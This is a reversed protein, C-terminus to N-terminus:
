LHYFFLSGCRWGRCLGPRRAVGLAQWSVSLFLSHSFDGDLKPKKLLKVKRIYVDHLPFINQINPFNHYGWRALSRLTRPFARPCSSPLSTRWSAPARASSSRWWRPVSPASRFTLRIESIKVGWECAFLYPWFSVRFFCDRVISFARSLIKKLLRVFYLFLHFILVLCMIFAILCVQATQAYSTKSIQNARKKTFAICFLRLVFGDTTKVETFCEILTQWKKVLSRLKDTTMDMGLLIFVLIIVGVMSTPWCTRARFRRALLACRATDLSTRTSIPWASRLSVAVCATPLLRPVPLRTWWLRASKASVLLSLEVWFCGSHLVFSGQHRVVGQTGHPGDGEEQSGEQEEHAAVWDARFRSLFHVKNKGVAM